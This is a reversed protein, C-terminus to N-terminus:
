DVCHVWIGDTAVEYVIGLATAGTADGTVVTSTKVYAVQGAHTIATTGDNTFRYLNVEHFLQVGVTLTGDGTLDDTFFGIPVLGTAVAAAKVTGSSVELVALAGEVAVAASKLIFNYRDASRKYMNVAM